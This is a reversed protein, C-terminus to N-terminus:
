FDTLRDIKFKALYSQVIANVIAIEYRNIDSQLKMLEDFRKGKSSYDTLLIDYASNSIEIQKNALEYMLKASEYESEYGQISSMMQNTLSEKQLEFAQQKLEEEQKKATYKKRYIPISVMVKPILIDRGNNAPIADIRGNVLGYDIGIGFTPKGDLANLDLAKNSAEINWDLQKILPHNSEIKQKIQELDYALEALTIKTTDVQITDTIPNNIEKNISASFGQKREELILIQQKLEAVKIRVTLVDSAISKGSEVKALAVKEITEFIRINKQIIKQQEQLLYLNFFATKIQYDIDLREAAIREYKSKAMTLVVDEKAKLTGFWPFMQSASIILNQSGLRTEVPLIPVGVGVTPDPLQSVQPGKQLAAEYELQLAKLAPNKDYAKKLLSDLTQAKVTFTSAMLALLIAIYKTKM